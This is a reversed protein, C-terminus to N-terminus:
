DLHGQLAQMVLGMEESAGFFLPTNEHLSNPVKDLISHKGDTAVGGAQEVLWAIPFAEYLLRLRGQQYGPREDAPYMFVGGREVIRHLEGVAAALWRMNFDRGRPGDRGKTIAGLYRQLGRPWRRVNSANFAICNTRSALEIHTRTVRFVDSLRDFVATCLGHGGKDVDGISFGMEISHGFHIYGAAVIERGSRRFDEGTPFVAFFMGLSAGIGISDSGDIPDMVVDFLGDSSLTLIAEEEESLVHRVHTRELARVVHQHAGLDLAKQQDGSDNMGVITAPDGPLRALALRDALPISARAITQVVHSLAQREQDDAWASLHSSLDPAEPRSDGPLSLAAATM